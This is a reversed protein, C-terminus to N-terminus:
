LKNLDIDFGAARLERALDLKWAGRPDLPTYAVGFLDSPLEVDASYIPCVKSRGLKGIFFGMELIVNQRARPMLKDPQAGGLDDPTLLVVAFSVSAANMEFKEILTKGANPQEHLIIPKLGLQELLRAVDVKVADGHGHVIFVSKLDLPTSATPKPPSAAAPQAVSLKFEIAELISSLM